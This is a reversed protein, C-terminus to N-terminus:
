AAAQRGLRENHKTTSRMRRWQEGDLMPMAGKDGMARKKVELRAGPGAGVGGVQKLISTFSPILNKYPRPDQKVAEYLACLAASMVSPDQSSSSTHALASAEATTTTHHPTTHKDDGVSELGPETGWM